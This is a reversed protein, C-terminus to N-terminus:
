DTSGIDNRNANIEVGSWVISRAIDMLEISNLRGSFIEMCVYVNDDPKKSLIAMNLRDNKVIKGFSALYETTYLVETIANAEFHNEFQMISKATPFYYEDTIFCYDTGSNISAYFEQVDEASDMREDSSANSRKIGIAGVCVDTNDYIWIRSDFLECNVGETAGLYLELEIPEKLCYWGKPLLFEIEFAAPDLHDNEPKTELSINFVNYGSSETVFNYMGVKGSGYIRDKPAPVNNQYISTAQPVASAEGQNPAPTPKEEDGEKIGTCGALLLILSLLTILIKKM